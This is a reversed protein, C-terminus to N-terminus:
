SGSLRARADKVCPHGEGLTATMQGLADGYLRRAAATDGRAEVIEGLMLQSLGVWASRPLDDRLETALALAKRAHAEAQAAQGARLELRAMEILADLHGATKSRAKEFITLAETLQRRASDVDGRARALLAPELLVEAQYLDGDPAARMAEVSERVAAEACTLDGLERCAIAVGMATMSRTSQSEQERAQKLTTELSRRAEAYRGLRNLLSGYSLLQTTTGPDRAAESGSRALIREELALAGLPDTLARTLGWNHLLTTGNNTDSGGIRDLEEAARTFAREARGSEGRMQHALALLHLADVRAFSSAGPGEGLRDLAGQAAALTAESDDRFHAMQGRTLLCFAAIRNYEAERPLSALAADLTRLAAERDDWYSAGAWACAAHARVAPDALKRSAEYARQTARRSNGSDFRLGYIDGIHMLMNVALVEDSGFRKDVLAEARKLMEPVGIPASDPIAEGLLFRTFENMADARALQTLALDRQRRAERAQWITGILGALLAALTLSALAVPLRHRRVFRAARYALSDPRAAIPRHDLYRRLDEALAAVCPYREEPKKKLAKAVITDLDGRSRDTRLPDPPSRRVVPADAGDGRNGPSCSTRPARADARGAPHRGALLEFLLVGLSYVDTATTITGGTM